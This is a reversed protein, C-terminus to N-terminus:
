NVKFKYINEYLSFTIEEEKVNEPIEFAIIGTTIEDPLIVNELLTTNSYVKNYDTGYEHGDNCYLIVSPKLLSINHYSKNKVHISYAVYKYGEKPKIVKDDNYDLNLNEIKLAINGFDIDENLRYSYQNVEIPVDWNGDYKDFSDNIAIVLLICCIWFLSIAFSLSSLVVGVIQMAKSKNQNNKRCIAVLGFVFSILAPIISIVGLGPLISILFAFIGLILSTVAM